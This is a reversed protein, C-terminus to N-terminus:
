VVSKYVGGGGGDNGGPATKLSHKKGQRGQVCDVELSLDLLGDGVGWRQLGEGPLAAACAVTPRTNSYLM